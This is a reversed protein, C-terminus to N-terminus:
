HEDLATLAAGLLTPVADGFHDFGAGVTKGALYRAHIGESVVALKFYGFGVYWSLRSLDRPSHKAYRQVMQRATLFGAEPLMRPMVSDGQQALEQYVVLLGVDTLPDGLTAMEWDVVAAIRDLEHAFMVNTLRYDGHVIAPASQQPLATTLRDVTQALEPRPQTESAQWQKHWRRVQRELFGDPRGFEALGVSAPDVEHLDVLTDMLLECSRTAAAPELTDLVARKDLVVGDVFSMLYFPAGLVDPDDCLAIADAVPVSTANLASIVRYERVMDHATPLVHALPPRRLAWVSSGDTIRYTLNSKGGAIVEGSLQGRRLGPHQADLWRTLATFDVGPLEGPEDESM